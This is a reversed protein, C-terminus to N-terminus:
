PVVKVGLAPGGGSSRISLCGGWGQGFQKIKCLIVNDGTKLTGTFQDQDPTVPRMVDNSHILKKNLWVDIGDDSGAGFLVEQDRDSRIVAKMYAVRNNGRFIQDLPVIRPGTEQPCQYSEWAATEGTEPAFVSVGGEMPYPGSLKWSAVFADTAGIEEQLYKQIRRAANALGSDSDTSFQKLLDTLKPERILPLLQLLEVRGPGKTQNLVELMVEQTVKPDNV